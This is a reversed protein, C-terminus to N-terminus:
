RTLRLFTAKSDTGAAVWLRHNRRIMSHRLLGVSFRLSQAGKLWLGGGGGPVPGSGWGGDVRGEEPAVGLVQVLSERGETLLHM